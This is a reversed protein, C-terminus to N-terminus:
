DLVARITVDIRAVAGSKKFVETSAEASLTNGAVAQSQGDSLTLTIGGEAGAQTYVVPVQCYTFGVQGPVLTVSQPEGAVDFYQLVASETLLERRRLNSPCFSVCGNAVLVGLEALRTLVEEKVQGTMGPQRAGSFGPTHSYPDTPFAGYADPTKNFGIGDRVDYYVAKLAKLVEASCGTAEAAQVTEMVALLLKSVMHWYISGLGEYAYMGGSRGTFNDCDFLASFLHEIDQREAAVEAAFGNDSM